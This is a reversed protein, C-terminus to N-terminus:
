VFFHLSYILIFHLYVCNLVGHQQHKSVPKKGKNRAKNWETRPTQEEILQQRFGCHVTVQVAHAPNKFLM